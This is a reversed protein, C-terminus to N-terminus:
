SLPPTLDPRPNHGLEYYRVPAFSVFCSRKKMRSALEDDALVSSHRTDFPRHLSPHRASTWTGFAPYGICVLALAIAEGIVSVVAKGREEQGNRMSSESMYIYIQGTERM